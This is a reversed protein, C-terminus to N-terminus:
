RNVESKEVAPGDVEEDTIRCLWSYVLALVLASAILGFGYWIALNVGAFPVSDMWQPVFTNILVFAAYLALYFVFLIMGYRANRAAIHAPQFTRQEDGHDWHGM